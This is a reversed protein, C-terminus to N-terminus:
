FINTNISSMIQVQKVWSAVTSKAVANYPKISSVLLQSAQNKERWISTREIYCDLAAIM